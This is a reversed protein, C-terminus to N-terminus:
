TQPLLAALNERIEDPLRKPGSGLHVFGLRIDLSALVPAAALAPVAADVIRQVLVCRSAGLSSLQTEVGLVAGLKAPRQYNITLHHVVFGMGQALWNAQDIGALRLMASRAREAFALYQAHYVIGGSDTDEYQVRLRYRHCGGAFWGDLGLDVPGSCSAAAEASDFWIGGRHQEADVM